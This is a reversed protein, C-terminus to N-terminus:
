RQIPNLNRGVGAREKVHYRCCGAFTTLINYFPKGQNQSIQAYLGSLYVVCLSAGVLPLRAFLLLMQGNTVPAVKRAKITDFVQFPIFRPCLEPAPQDGCPYGLV